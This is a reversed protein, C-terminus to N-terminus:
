QKIHALLNETERSVKWGRRQTNQRSVALSICGALLKYEKDGCM